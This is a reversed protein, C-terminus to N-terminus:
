WIPQSPSLTFNHVSNIWHIPINSVRYTHVDFSIKGRFVTLNHKYSSPWVHAEHLEAHWMHKHGKRTVYIHAAAACHVWTGLTCGWVKMLTHSKLLTLYYKWCSRVRWRRRACCLSFLLIWVRVKSSIVFLKPVCDSDTSNSIQPFSSLHLLSDDAASCDVRSSFPFPSDTYGMGPRFSYSPRYSDLLGPTMELNNCPWIFKRGRLVPVMCHAAARQLRRQDEDAVTPVILFGPRM